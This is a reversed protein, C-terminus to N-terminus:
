ANKRDKPTTKWDLMPGDYHVGHMWACNIVSDQWDKWRRVDEPDDLMVTRDTFEFVIRVPYEPM